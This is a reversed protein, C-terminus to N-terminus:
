SADKPIEGAKTLSIKTLIPGIIEFFISTATITTITMRGIMVAHPTGILSFEQQVILSLGIAVGAQSLIGFGLYKKIKDEAKGIIAGLAAGGILGVSRGFFICRESWVLHLFHM